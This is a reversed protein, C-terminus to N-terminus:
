LKSQLVKNNNNPPKTKNKSYISDLAKHPGPLGEAM